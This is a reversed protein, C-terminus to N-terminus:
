LRMFLLIYFYGYHNLVGSSKNRDGYILIIEDRMISATEQLLHRNICLSYPFPFNEDRLHTNM